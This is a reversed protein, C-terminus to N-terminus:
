QHHQKNFWCCPHMCVDILELIVSDSGSWLVLLGVIILVLPVRGIMSLLLLLLLLLLIFFSPNNHNRGKRGSSATGGVNDSGFLLANINDMETPLERM